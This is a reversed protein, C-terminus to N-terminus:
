PHFAKRLSPIIKTATRQVGLKAIDKAHRPSWFQVAYELHRRVLSTYLPLILDKNKFSFNLKFFGLM